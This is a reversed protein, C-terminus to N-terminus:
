LEDIVGIYIIASSPEDYCPQSPADIGSWLLKMAPVDAMGTVGCVSLPTWIL